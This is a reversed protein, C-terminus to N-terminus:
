RRGRCRRICPTLQLSTDRGELSPRQGLVEPHPISSIAPSGEEEDQPALSALRSPRVATMCGVGLGASSLFYCHGSGASWLRAIRGLVHADDAVGILVAAAIALLDHHALAVGIDAMDARAAKGDDVHAIRGPRLGDVVDLVRRVGPAQMELHMVVQKEEHVAPVHERLGLHRVLAVVVLRLGAPVVRVLTRLRAVPRRAHRDEVNRLRRLRPLDTEHRHLARAQM